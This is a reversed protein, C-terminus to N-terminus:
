MFAPHTRECARRLFKQSVHAYIMTTSLNQHGLMEQIVRIDAGGELMSTAAGHRFQHPFVRGEIGARRALTKLILWFSCRGLRKGSRSLFLPADPCSHAPGPYRRKRAELYRQLAATARNSIPVLRERSGKGLVRTWGDVLNVRSLDLGTLESVRIGTAYLIELMAVNRVTRFDKGDAKDIIQEIEDPALPRPLSRRSKPLRLGATPDGFGQCRAVLFKHFQRIVVAAAFISGGRLGAAKRNDLYALVDERTATAPSRRRGELFRMYSRLQYGYAEWTRPSLGREVRLHRVFEALMEEASVISDGSRAEGRGQGGELREENNAVLDRNKAADCVRDGKRIIRKESM